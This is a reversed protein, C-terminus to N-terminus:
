QTRAVEARARPRWVRWDSSGAPTRVPFAFLIAILSTRKRLLCFVEAVVFAATLALLTVLWPPAIGAQASFVITFYIVPFHTVYYVVSNQGIHVLPRSVVRPINPGFRYFASCALLVGSIVGATFVPEYHMHSGTAAFWACVSVPILLILISRSSLLDAFRRFERHAVEGLLFIGWLFFFRRVANIEAPVVAAILFTTLILPSRAVKKLVWSMMYYAFLYAIFWLYSLYLGPSTLTYREGVGFFHVITWILYPWALTSLKGILFPRAPKRLSLFAIFGSLFMLLPMRFPVFVAFMATLPALPEYGFRMLSNAHYLIVLILALGRAQDIWEQRGRRVEVTV